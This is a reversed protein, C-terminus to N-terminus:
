TTSIGLPNCCAAIYTNPLPPHAREGVIGSAINIIGNSFLVIFYANLGEQAGAFQRLGPTYMENLTPISLDLAVLFCTSYLNGCRLDLAKTM